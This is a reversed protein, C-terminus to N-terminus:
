RSRMAASDRALFSRSQPEAPRGSKGGRAQQFAESALQMLRMGSIRFRLAEKFLYNVVYKHQYFDVEEQIERMSRAGAIKEVLRTEHFLFDPYLLRVVPAAIRMRRFLAKKLVFEIYKAEDIQQLQCLAQKFTVPQM